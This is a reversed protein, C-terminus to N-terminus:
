SVAWTVLWAGCSTNLLSACEGSSWAMPLSNQCFTYARRSRYEAIRIATWYQALNLFTRRIIRDDCFIGVRHNAPRPRTIAGVAWSVLGRVGILYTPTPRVDHVSSCRTALLNEEPLM